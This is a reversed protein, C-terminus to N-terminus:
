GAMSYLQAELYNMGAIWKAGQSKSKGSTSTKGWVQRGTEADYDIRTMPQHCVPGSRDRHSPHNWNSMQAYDSESIMPKMIPQGKKKGKKYVRPNGAEDLAPVMENRAHWLEEQFRQKAEAKGKGIPDIEQLRTWRATMYQQRDEDTVGHKRMKERFGDSLQTLIEDPKGEGWLYAEDRGIVLTKPRECMFKGYYVYKITDVGDGMSDLLLRYARHQHGPLTVNGDEDKEDPLPSAEVTRTYRRGTQPNVTDYRISYVILDKADDAEPSCVVEGVPAKIGQGKAQAHLRVMDQLRIILGFADVLVVGERGDVTKRRTGLRVKVWACPTREVGLAKWSAQIKVCEAFARALPRKNTYAQRDLKGTRTDYFWLEAVGFRFSGSKNRLDGSTVTQKTPKVGECAEVQGTPAQVGILEIYEDWTIKGEQYATFAEQDFTLPSDKVAFPNFCEASGPGTQISSDYEHALVKWVYDYDERSWEGTKTLEFAAQLQPQLELEAVFNMYAPKDFSDSEFPLDGKHWDKLWVQLQQRNVYGM